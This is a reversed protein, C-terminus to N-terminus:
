ASPGLVAPASRAPAPTMGATRIGQTWRELAGLDAPGGELVFRYIDMSLVRKGYFGPRELAEAKLQLIRRRDAGALRRRLADDRAARFRFDEPAWGWLDIKWEHGDGTVVRLGWYLGAGLPHPDVYDDLYEAKHLRMGAREFAAGLVSIMGAWHLRADPAVPAHVDLDRWAMLDYAYSGTPRAGSFREALLAVLGTAEILAEAEGRLAAARAVPDDNM